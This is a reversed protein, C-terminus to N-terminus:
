KKKKKPAALASASHNTQPACLRALVAANTAHPFHHSDYPTHNGARVLAHADLVEFPGRAGAARWARLQAERVREVGRTEHAKASPMPTRMVVRAGRESLRAYLADTRALRHEVDTARFVVDHLGKGVLVVPHRLALLRTYVLVADADRGLDPKWSFVVRTASQPHWAEYDVWDYRCRGRYSACFCDACGYARAEDCGLNTVNWTRFRRRLVYPTPDGVPPRGHELTLLAHNALARVTSDGVLVLTRGACEM